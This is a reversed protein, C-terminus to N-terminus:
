DHSEGELCPIATTGPLLWDESKFVGKHGGTKHREAIEGALLFLINITDAFRQKLGESGDEKQWCWEYKGANVARVIADIHKSLDSLIVKAPGDVGLLVARHRFNEMRDVPGYEQAKSEMIQEAKELIEARIERLKKSTLM